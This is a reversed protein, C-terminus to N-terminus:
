RAAAAPQRGVDALMTNLNRVRDASGPHRDVPRSVLEVVNALADAGSAHAKPSAAPGDPPLSVVFAQVAARLRAPNQFNRDLLRVACADSQLEQGGYHQEFLLKGSLVTNLVTEQGARSQNVTRLLDAAGGRLSAADVIRAQVIRTEHRQLVHAIEHALAFTGKDLKDPEAVLAKDLYLLGGPLAMANEGSSTRIFVRFQYDHPEDVTKLLDALMKDAVPYLRRGLTSERALVEDEMQKHQREGYAVELSMPLWNMRVASQRMSLSMQHRQGKLDPKPKPQGKPALKSELSAGLMSGLGGAAILSLDGFNDSPTFPAVLRACRADLEVSAVDIKKAGVQLTAATAPAPTPAVAKQVPAPRPAPLVSASPDNALPATAVCGATLCLAPLLPLAVRKM